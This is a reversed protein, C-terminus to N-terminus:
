ALWEVSVAKELRKFEPDGTVVKSKNHIGLAAAFCDAFAIAHRAKLKAAEITLPKDADVLVVPLQRIMFLVENAKEIGRERMTTYYIEGLNIVSLLIKTKGAEASRLLKGVKGGAAEAEFYAILAYSDFVYARDM